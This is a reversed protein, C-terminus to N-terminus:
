ATKGAPSPPQSRAEAAERPAFGVDLAAITGRLNRCLTIDSTLIELIAPFSVPIRKGGRRFIVECKKSM